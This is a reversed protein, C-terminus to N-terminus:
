IDQTLKWIARENAHLKIQALHCKGTTPSTTEEKIIELRTKFIRSCSGVVHL